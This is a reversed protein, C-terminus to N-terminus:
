SSAASSDDSAGGGSSLSVAAMENPDLSPASATSSSSVSAASSPTPSSSAAPAPRARTRESRAAVKGTIARGRRRGHPSPAFTPDVIADPKGALNVLWKGRGVRTLGVFFRMQPPLTDKIPLTGRELAAIRRARTKGDWMMAVARYTEVRARENSPDPTQLIIGNVAAVVHALTTGGVPESQGAMGIRDGKRLKPITRALHRKTLPSTRGTRPDRHLPSTGNDLRWNLMWDLTAM